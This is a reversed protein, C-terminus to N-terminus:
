LASVREDRLVYSLVVHLSLTHISLRAQVMQSRCRSEVERDVEGLHSKRRLDFSRHCAVHHLVKPLWQLPCSMQVHQGQTDAGEAWSTKKKKRAHQSRESFGCWLSSSTLSGRKMGSFLVM